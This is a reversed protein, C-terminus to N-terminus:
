SLIHEKAIMANQNLLLIHAKIYIIFGKDTTLSYRVFTRIFKFFLTACQQQLGTPDSFNGFEM